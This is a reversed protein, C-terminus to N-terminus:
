LILTSICTSKLCFIPVHTMTQLHFTFIGYFLYSINKHVRSNIHTTFTQLRIKYINIIKSFFQGIAAKSSMLSKWVMEHYAFKRHMVALSYQLRKANQVVSQEDVRKTNPVRTM